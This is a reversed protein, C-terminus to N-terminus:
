LWTLFSVGNLSLNAPVPPKDDDKTSLEGDELKLNSLAHHNTLWAKYHDENRKGFRLRNGKSTVARNQPDGTALDHDSVNEKLVVLSIVHITIM